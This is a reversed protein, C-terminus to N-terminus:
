PKSFITLLGFMDVPLLRVLTKRRRPHAALSWAPVPTTEAGLDNRLARLDVLVEDIHQYGEQLGEDKSDQRGAVDTRSDLLVFMVIVFVGM